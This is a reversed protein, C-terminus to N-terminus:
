RKVVLRKVAQELGDVTLPFMPFVKGIMQVTPHIWFRPSDLNLWIIHTFHEAIRKLWVIGPNENREFYDIAGYKKTLEWTGMRADGVLLLKYDPELIHLLHDTSIAEQSLNVAAM